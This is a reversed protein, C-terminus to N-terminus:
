RSFEVRSSGPRRHQQAPERAQGNSCSGEAINQIWRHILGQQFCTGFDTSSRKQLRQGRSNEFLSQTYIQFRDKMKSINLAQIMEMAQVPAAVLRGSETRISATVRKLDFDPGTSALPVQYTVGSGTGGCHLTAPGDEPRELEAGAARVGECSAQVKQSDGFAVDLVQDERLALECVGRPIYGLEAQAEILAQKPNELRITDCDKLRTPLIRNQIFSLENPTIKLATACNEVQKEALIHLAEMGVLGLGSLSASYLTSARFSAWRNKVKLNRLEVKENPRFMEDFLAMQRFEGCLSEALGAGPFKKAVMEKFQAFEKLTAERVLEANVIARMTLRERIQQAAESDSTRKLDQNLKEREHEYEPDLKRSIEIRKQHFGKELEAYEAIQKPFTKRAYERGDEAIVEEMTKVGDPGPTQTKQYLEQFRPDSSARIESQIVEKVQNAALDPNETVKGQPWKQSDSYPRGANKKLYQNREEALRDAYAEDAQGPYIKDQIETAQREPKQGTLEQYLKEQVQVQAKRQLVRYKANIALNENMHAYVAKSNRVVMADPKLKATVAGVLAGVGATVVGTATEISYCAAASGTRICDQKASYQQIFEHSCRPDSSSASSSAFSQWPQGISWIFILGLYKGV